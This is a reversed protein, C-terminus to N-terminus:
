RPECRENLHMRPFAKDAEPFIVRFGPELIQGKPNKSIQSTLVAERRQVLQGYLADLKNATCATIFAAARRAHYLPTREPNIEDHASDFQEQTIGALKIRIGVAM